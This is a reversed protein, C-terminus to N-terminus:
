ELFGELQRARREVGGLPDPCKQLKSAFIAWYHLLAGCTARWQKVVQYSGHNGPL